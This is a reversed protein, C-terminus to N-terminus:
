ATLQAISSLLLPLDFPKAVFLSVNQSQARLRDCTQTGASVIVIKSQIHGASNIRQLVEWGDIGPLKIDLLVLDPSRHLIMRLGDEGDRAIEVDYGRRVINYHLVELTSEEDEIILIKKM